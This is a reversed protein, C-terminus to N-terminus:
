KPMKPDLMRPLSVTFTSGEGLSSSATITGGHAAALMQSIYLGLGLGGAGTAEARYFRQFLQPLHDPPIGVGEDSVVMRAEDEGGELRVVVEGGDPSYKIANTLLNQLVQGLRQRDWSGVISGDPAEIRFIHRDTQKELVGIEEHVLDVLDFAKMRLHIEGAELRVVDALDDILTQMRAVQDLISTLAKQTQANEGSRRRLLQAQGKVATLPSRLDHTVMALFDRQLRELRSRESIDRIASLFVTGDPLDVLTARAEVPVTSGDKRRLQLQAQWQGDAIFQEYEARTWEPEEAVIDEVGLQMLEDYDYGLLTTAAANADLYRRDADAVLIADAVGEFLGRYRREAIEAWNRAARERELLMAHMREARDRDIGMSIAHAISSLVTLTSEGLPQRAFLAMVGLVRDGIHLPYGAFAVMGEKRAWEQDHVEPDGLVTNSLHPRCEAAIRGIKLTGVPVRGHAGDLHTYLGSSARLVLMSPDNEDITWIRAFAADLYTVIAGTCLALQESLPRRDTLAVGITASLEVQRSRARRASIDRAIGHIVMPRDDTVMLRSNIELAVRRGDKHVADIEYATRDEGALKRDRMGYSRDVQDPAIVSEISCGILEEPSYGLIHEVAQNVALVTGDLSITYVIDDAHDVVDRYRAERARLDREARCRDDIDIATGIWQGEAEESTADPAIRALHWRYVGDARRFRYEIEYPERTEAAAQWRRRLTEVDDPHIAATWSHGLAAEGSLGTYAQWYPNTYAIRGDGRLAWIPQQMADTLSRSM